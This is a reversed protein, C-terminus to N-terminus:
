PGVVGCAPCPRPTGAQLPLLLPLGCGACPAPRFRLPGTDPTRQSPLPNAEIVCRWGYAWGVTGPPDWPTPPEWPDTCGYWVEQEWQARWEAPTFYVVNCGSDNGTRHGHSLHEEVGM